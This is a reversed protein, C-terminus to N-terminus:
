HALITTTVDMQPFGDVGDGYGSIKACPAKTSCLAENSWRKDQDHIVVAPIIRTRVDIDAGVRSIPPRDSRSFAM